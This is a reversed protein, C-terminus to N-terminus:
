AWANKSEVKEQEVIFYKCKSELQTLLLQDLIRIKMFGWSDWLIDLWEALCYVLIIQKGM